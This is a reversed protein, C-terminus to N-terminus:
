QPPVNVLIQQGKLQIQIKLTSGDSLTAIADYLGKSSEGTIVVSSCTASLGSQMVIQNVVPLAAAQLMEKPPNALAAAGGVVGAVMFWVVTAALAILVPKGWAKKEYQIGAEKVYTIQKKGLKYYWVVLLIVYVLPMPIGPVLVVLLLYVPLFGIWIKVWTMSKKAEDPKGLEQWNKAMLWASFIPSFLLALNAAANPNWLKIVGSEPQSENEMFLKSQEEEQRVRENRKKILFWLLIIPVLPILCTLWTYGGPQGDGQPPAMAIIAAVIGHTLEVSNM